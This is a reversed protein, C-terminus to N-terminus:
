LGYVSIDRSADVYARIYFSSKLLSPNLHRARHRTRHTQSSTSLKKGRFLDVEFFPFPFLVASINFFFFFFFGWRSIVVLSTLIM